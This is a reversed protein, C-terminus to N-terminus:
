KWLNLFKWILETTVYALGIMVSIWTVFDIILIGTSLYRIIPTFIFFYELCCIIVFTIRGLLNPKFTKM